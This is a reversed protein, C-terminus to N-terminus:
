KVKSLGVAIESFAIRYHAATTLKNSMYLAYLEEQLAIFFGDWETRPIRAMDLAQQNAIKSAKLIEPPTKFGGAAIASAINNFSDSLAIGGKQRWEVKVTKKAMDYSFKALKFQGDPFAPEPEPNPNPPVPPIPPPNPGPPVPEPGEGVQIIKHLLITRAIIKDLRFAQFRFCYNISCVALLRRPKIGVGFSIESKESGIVIRERLDPEYIKWNYSLGILNSPIKQFPIAKLVAVDGLPIPVEAGIIEPKLSDPQPIPPVYTLWNYVFITIVVVSVLGIIYFYKRNKEFM